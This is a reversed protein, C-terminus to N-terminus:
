TRKASDNFYREKCVDHQECRGRQRDLRSGENTTQRTEDRLAGLGRSEIYIPICGRGWEWLRWDVV